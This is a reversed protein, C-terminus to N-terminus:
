PNAASVFKKLCSKGCFHLPSEELSPQINVDTVAGGWNPIPENKVVIRWDVSNGTVSLDNGCCDCKIEIKQSMNGGEGAKGSDSFIREIDEKLVCEEESSAGEGGKIIVCKMLESLLRAREEKVSFDVAENLALRYAEIAVLYKEKSEM